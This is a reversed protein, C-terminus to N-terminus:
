IGCIVVTKFTITFQKFSDHISHHRAVVLIGILLSYAFCGLLQSLEVNDGENKMNHDIGVDTEAMIHDIGVDTEAM